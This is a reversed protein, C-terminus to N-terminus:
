GTLRFFKRFKESKETPINSASAVSYANDNKFCPLTGSKAESLESGPFNGRIANELRAKYNEVDVNDQANKTNTVALYVETKDCKRNFILAINCEENSLVEYVNVLKELNNEKKDTVWKTINFYRINYEPNFPNEYEADKQVPVYLDKLQPLYANFIEVSSAALLRKTLEEAVTDNPNPMESLYKDRNNQVEQLQEPSLAALRAVKNGAKAGAKSIMNKIGM